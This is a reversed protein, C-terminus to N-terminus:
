YSAVGKEVVFPACSSLTTDGRRSIGLRILDGLSFKPEYYTVFEFYHANDTEDYYYGDNRAHTLTLKVLWYVRGNKPSVRPEVDDVYGDVVFREEKLDEM